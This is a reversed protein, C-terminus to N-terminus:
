CRRLHYRTRGDYEDAYEADDVWYSLRMKMISGGMAYSTDERKALIGVEWGNAVTNYIKHISYMNDTTPAIPEMKLKTFDVSDAHSELGQYIAGAVAVTQEATLTGVAGFSSFDPLTNKKAGAPMAALQLAAVAAAAFAALSKTFLNRM